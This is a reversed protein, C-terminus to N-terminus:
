RGQLRTTASDFIQNGRTAFEGWSMQRRSIQANLTEFHNTTERLIQLQVPTVLTTISSLYRDRCRSSEAVLDALLRAEPATPIEPNAM